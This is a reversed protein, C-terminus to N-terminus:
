NQRYNNQNSQQTNKEKAVIINRNMSNLCNLLTQKNTNLTKCSETGSIDKLIQVDKQIQSKVQSINKGSNIITRMASINRTLCDYIGTTSTELNCDYIGALTKGSTSYSSSGSNTDAGAAQMNTTLVAKELQTKLRKITAELYDYQKKMQQTIITTKLAVIQKMQEQDAAENPNEVMGINYAATSCLTIEANIYDNTECGNDTGFASLPTILLLGAFALLGFKTFITNKIKM